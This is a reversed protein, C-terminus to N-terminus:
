RPGQTTSRPRGDTGRGDDTRGNMAAALADPDVPKVLHADFGAAFARERDAPQGYGTLAILRVGRASESGRIRRAVEYGDLGPLGIDVLAVDPMSALALEVGREGDGAAAVEHRWTGLLASLMERADQNDEIILVRLARGGADAPPRRSDGDNADGADEVGARPLHILFESGKGTGESRAEVRGGHMEVLRRVLTLGIGLGGRSRDLSRDAQAFLDFVFPLMDPEIGIGSDKVRCVVEAGEREVRVQIRGGKDTYKIANQVLNSLIQELRTPDADVYVPDAPWSGELRQARAEAQPRAADLVRSLVPGFDLRERKLTVKGRTIRSVDLLDDVLRAMHRVQRDIIGAAMNAKQDDPACMQILHAANIMPGLPTRLEHALMALFDDKRRDAEALEDARIRLGEELRKRETVDSVLFVWGSGGSAVPDRTVRYWRGRSPIDVEGRSPLGVTADFHESTDPGFLAAAVERYPRGVVDGSERGVMAALSRNCRVIRGDPAVMAVGDIIADFTAQWDLAAARALDEAHRARLLARVTAVLEMAEVPQSLYGDAGMELGEVRKASGSTTATLMLVPISATEATEKIRRCVELGSLDPLHVDLVVLDPREAARELAQVGTAAERVDFGARQLTRVTAYRNADTDDVVLVVSQSPTGTETV